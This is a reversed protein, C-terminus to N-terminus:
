AAGGRMMEPSSIRGNAIVYRIHEKYGNGKDISFYSNDEISSKNKFLFDYASNVSSKEYQPNIELINNIITRLSM